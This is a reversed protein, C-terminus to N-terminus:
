LLFVFRFRTEAPPTLDAALLDRLIRRSSLLNRIASNPFEWRALERNIRADTM